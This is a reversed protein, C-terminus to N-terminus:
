TSSALWVQAVHGLWDASLPVVHMQELAPLTYLLVEFAHEHWVPRTGSALRM